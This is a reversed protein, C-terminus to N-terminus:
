LSFDFVTNPRTVKGVYGVGATFVQRAEIVNVCDRIADAYVANVASQEPMALRALNVCYSAPRRVQESEELALVPLAGALPHFARFVAACNRYPMAIYRAPSKPQM